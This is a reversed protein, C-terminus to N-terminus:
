RKRKRIQPKLIANVKYTKRRHRYGRRLVFTVRASRGSKTPSKSIKPPEPEASVNEKTENKDEPGSTETIEEEFEKVFDDNTEDSLIERIQDDLNEDSEDNLNEGVKDTEDDL